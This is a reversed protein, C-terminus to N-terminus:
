LIIWTGVTSILVWILLSPPAIGANNEDSLAVSAGGGEDSDSTVAGLFPSLGCGLDNANVVNCSCGPDCTVQNENTLDTNTEILTLSSTGSTTTYVITNLDVYEASMGLAQQIISGCVTCTVTCTLGTGSCSYYGTVPSFSVGNSNGDTQSIQPPTSNLCKQRNWSAECCMTFDEYIITIWEPKSSDNLVCLGTAPIMYFSNPIATGGGSTMQPTTSDQTATTSKLTVQGKSDIQFESTDKAAFVGGSVIDEGNFSLTYSGHGEKMGDKGKDLIELVYNQTEKDAGLIPITEEAFLLHDAYWGYWKFGLELDHEVNLISWAMEDPNEDFDLKLTLTREPNSGVYFGHSVSKGSMQTFGPELVLVDKMIYSRGKFVAVMGLFGDGKQDYITLRYFKEPDVLIEHRFAEQFKDTYFGVARSDITTGDPHSTLKWGLDQPNLPDTEVFITVLGEGEEKTTPSATPPTNSAVANGGM